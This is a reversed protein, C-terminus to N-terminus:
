MRVRVRPSSSDYNFDVFRWLKVANALNKADINEFHESVIEAFRQFNDADLSASAHWADLRSMKELKETKDAIYGANVIGSEQMEKYVKLIAQAILDM